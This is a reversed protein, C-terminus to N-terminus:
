ALTHLPLSITFVCGCGPVDRVTLAGLDAEVSQRAISLGLGLGARADDNPKFPVFMRAVAGAPLGGCHDAVEILVQDGSAYARLTVTAAPQTFKFANQLLNALAAHLLDRNANIALTADVADVVFTCRESGADLRGALEADAVFAAVSFTQRTDTLEGRVEALARSVLLGLNALSRKLLAGTAGAIPMNGLELARVAITATGLSNRLEHVLFGMRQKEDALQQVARQSSFELVADAIANDLCRNLTRYEDISFPADLEFALDTIAQCLDGYDHVVQDVTYGVNLLEKGHVSASVGMESLASADGGSGGSIRISAKDNGGEEAALTRILQELFMPVGHSLQSDTAARRVRRAVKSKCRAVLDERHNSLFIRM